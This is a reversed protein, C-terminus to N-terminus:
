SSNNSVLKEKWPDRANNHRTYEPELLVLTGLTKPDNSVSPNDIKLRNLTPVSIYQNNRSIPIIGAMGFVRKGLVFVSSAEEARANMFDIKHAPCIQTHLPCSVHMTVLAILNSSQLTLYYDDVFDHLQVLGNFQCVVEQSFVELRKVNVSTLTPSVCKIDATAFTDSLKTFDVFGWSTAEAAEHWHCLLDSIKYGHFNNVANRCVIKIGNCVGDKYLPIGNSNLSYFLNFVSIWDRKLVESSDDWYLYCCNLGIQVLEMSSSDNKGHDHSQQIAQHLGKGFIRFCKLLTQFRNEVFNGDENLVLSTLMIVIDFHYNYNESSPATEGFYNRIIHCISPRSAFANSSAIISEVNSFLHLLFGIRMIWSNKGMEFHSESNLSESIATLYSETFLTDFLNSIIHPSLPYLTPAAGPAIYSLTESYMLVRPESRKVFVTEKSSTKANETNLFEYDELAARRENNLPSLTHSCNWIPKPIKGIVFASANNFVRAINIDRSRQCKKNITSIINRGGSPAHLKIDSMVSEGQTSSVSRLPGTIYMSKVLHLLEHNMFYAESTPHLLDGLVLTQVLDNYLGDLEHPFIKHQLIRKFTEALRCYYVKYVGAMFRALVAIVPIFVTYLDILQAYKFQHFNHLLSPFRFKSRLHPPFIAADVITQAQELDFLQFVWWANKSSFNPNDFDMFQFIELRNFHAKLSDSVTRESLGFLTELHHKIKLGISHFSDYNCQDQFSFGRIDSLLSIGTVGLYHLRKDPVNPPRIAEGTTLTGVLHFDEFLSEVNNVDRTITTARAMQKKANRRVKAKNKKIVEAVKVLYGVSLPEKKSDSLPKNFLLKYEDYEHIFNNLRKMNKERGKKGRSLLEKTTVSNLLFDDISQLTPITQHRNNNNFSEQLFDLLKTQATSANILRSDSSDRTLEAYQNIKKHFSSQMCFYKQMSEENVKALSSENKKAEKKALALEERQRQDLGRM